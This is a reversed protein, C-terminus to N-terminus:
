TAAQLDGDGRLWWFIGCDTNEGCKETPIKMKLCAMQLSYFLTEKVSSRERVLRKSRLVSSSHLKCESPEKKKSAMIAM